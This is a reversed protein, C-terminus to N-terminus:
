SRHRISRRTSVGSLLRSAGRGLTKGGRTLYRLHGRDTEKLAACRREIRRLGRVEGDPSVTFSTFRGGHHLPRGIPQSSGADWLRM